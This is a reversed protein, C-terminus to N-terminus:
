VVRIIGGRQATLIHERDCRFLKKDSTKHDDLALTGDMSAPGKHPLRAPTAKIVQGDSHCRGVAFGPVTGLGSLGKDRKNVIALEITEDWQGTGPHSPCFWGTRRHRQSGPSIGWRDAAADAGQYSLLSFCHVRGYWEGFGCSGTSRPADTFCLLEFSLCDLHSLWPWINPLIPEWARLGTSKSAPLWTVQSMLM